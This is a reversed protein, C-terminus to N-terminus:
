VREGIPIANIDLYTLSVKDGLESIVALLVINVHEASM